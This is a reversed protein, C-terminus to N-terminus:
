LPFIHQKCLNKCRCDEQHHKKQDDWYVDVGYDGKNGESDTIYATVGNEGEFGPVLFPLELVSEYQAPITLNEQGFQIEGKEYGQMFSEMSDYSLVTPIGNKTLHEFLKYKDFCLRATELSPCLPLIGNDLFMQRNKALMEIEPDILTTIARVQNEKCIELLRGMYGPDTIRPVVYQKDAFYLAPATSQNDVAVIQSGADLSERFFQLLKTRRGASCFLINTTM